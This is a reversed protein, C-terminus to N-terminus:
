NQSCSLPHITKLVKELATVRMEIQESRNQSKLFDLLHLGYGLELSFLDAEIQAHENSLEGSQHELVIHGLEHLLIAIARNTHGNKMLYYLEPYIIILNVDAKVASAYQGSSLIFITKDVTKRINSYGKIENYLKTFAKNVEVTEKIWSHEDKDLFKESKKQKKIITLLKNM